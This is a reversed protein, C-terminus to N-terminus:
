EFETTDSVEQAPLYNELSDKRLSKALKTKHKRFQKSLAEM